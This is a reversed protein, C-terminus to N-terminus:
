ELMSRGVERLLTLVRRVYDPSAGALGCSPTPVVAGALLQRDFGLQQWFRDVQDRLSEFTILADTGPAIGLWISTGADILEGLVDLRQKNLLSADLAIADAGAEALVALDIDPACCHVVRHGPEASDLVATLVPIAVSRDLSRVTGYGSPTPVTGALVAPLGPEDVQLVIKTGPLRHQVEALHLRTGEALSAALDAFAGHDTLVKHLNPLEISAALTLPGCVQVKFVEVGQAQETIEDLDRSLFDQARRLDRGRSSAVTWGHPQWETAIDVLLNASRGILDAGLGRAPLEPLYPLTAVEGLVLALAETPDAGPLSGLGTSCGAPWATVSQSV